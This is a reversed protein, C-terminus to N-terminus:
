PRSRHQCAGTACGVVRDETQRARSRRVAEPVRPRCASSFEFDPRRAPFSAARLRTSRTSSGSACRADRPRYRRTLCWVSLCVCSPSGTCCCCAFRVGCCHRVRAHRIRGGGLDSAGNSRRLRRGSPHSLAVAIGSRLGRVESGAGRPPRARVPTGAGFSAGRLV